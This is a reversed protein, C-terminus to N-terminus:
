QMIRPSEKVADRKRKSPTGTGKGKGKAKGKANGKGRATTVDEFDDEEDDDDDHPKGRGCLPSPILALELKGHPTAMGGRGPTSGNGYGGNLQKQQPTRVSSDRGAASKPTKNPTNGLPTKNKRKPTATQRPTLPLRKQISSSDGENDDDDDNNNNNFGFSSYLNTYITKPDTLSM